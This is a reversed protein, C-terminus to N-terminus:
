KQHPAVQQFRDVPDATPIEFRPRVLEKLVKLCKYAKRKAKGRNTVIACIHSSFATYDKYIPVLRGSDLYSYVLGRWEPAIGKGAAAAELLYVYGYYDHYEPQFNAAQNRVLYNTWNAWGTNPKSLRLFPLGKWTSIPKNLTDRNRELFGPSCVPRLNEEFLVARDDAESLGEFHCVVIDADKSSAADEYRVFSEPIIRFSIQAKTQRALEEFCPLVVLHSLEYVCSITLHSHSQDASIVDIASTIQDFGMVVANFLHRGENSLVVSRGRREFLRVGLREELNAIHRSIATQSTNLEEAARTFNQHQAASSFALLAATSPLKRSPRLM